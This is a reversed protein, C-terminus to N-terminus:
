RYIYVPERYEDVAHDDDLSDLLDIIGQVHKRASASMRDLCEEAYQRVSVTRARGKLMRGLTTNLSSRRKVKADEVWQMRQLLYKQRDNFMEMMIVRVEGEHFVIPSGDGGDAVIGSVGHVNRVCDFGRAIDHHIFAYGVLFPLRRERLRRSRRVRVEKWFAPMYVDIGAERLNREVISEGRRYEDADPMPAAMRQFGPTVRIAYWNSRISSGVSIGHSRAIDNWDRNDQETLPTRARRM